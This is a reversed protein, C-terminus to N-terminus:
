DNKRVEMSNNIELEVSTMRIENEVEELMM